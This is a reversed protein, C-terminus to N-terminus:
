SYSGRREYLLSLLEAMMNVCFSQTVKRNRSTVGMEVEHRLVSAGGELHKMNGTDIVNGIDRGPKRCRASRRTITKPMKQGAM